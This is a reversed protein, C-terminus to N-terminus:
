EEKVSTISVYPKSYDNKAITGKPYVTVTMKYIRCDLTTEEYLKGSSLTASNITGKFNAFVTILGSTDTGLSNLKKITVPIDMNTQAQYAIYINAKVGDNNKITITDQKTSPNATAFSSPIYFLYLNSVETTTIPISYAGTYIEDSYFKEETGNDDLDSCTYELSCTIDVENQLTDKKLTVVVNQSIGADITADSYSSHTPIPTPMAEVRNVYSAHVSKFHARAENDYDSTAKLKDMDIIAVVNENITLLKPMKY